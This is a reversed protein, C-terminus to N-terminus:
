LFWRVDKKRNINNIIRTIHTQSVNFMKALEAHTYKGEKGLEKIKKVDENTLKCYVPVRKSLDIEPLVYKYTKGTCISKVVSRSVGYKQAIEKQSLVGEFLLTKIEKAQEETLKKLSSQYYHDIVKGTQRKRNTEGIKKKTEESMYTYAEGNKPLRCNLGRKSDLVNYLNGYFLERELVNEPTCEEIIEFKHNEVGYKLFSYYLRRQSGCHLRRYNYFRQEIDSSSGIYIKGSPSTIKYVGIM